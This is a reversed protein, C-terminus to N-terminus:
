DADDSVAASQSAGAYTFRKHFDAGSITVTPIGDTEGFTLGYGGPDDNRQQLESRCARIVSEKLTSTIRARTDGHGFLMTATMDRLMSAFDAQIDEIEVNDINVRLSKINWEMQLPWENVPDIMYSGSVSIMFDASVSNNESGDLHGKYMAQVGSKDKGAEIQDFTLYLTGREIFGNEDTEEVEREWRGELSDSYDQVTPGCGSAVFILTMCALAPMFQIIHLSSRKM